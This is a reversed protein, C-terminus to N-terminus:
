ALDDGLAHEILVALAPPYRGERFLRIETPSYPFTADVIFRDLGAPLQIEPLLLDAPPYLGRSPPDAPNHSSPVYASIISLSHDFQELFDHVRRFVLNTAKSRSRSNWWGEVVGKNDGFVKFHGSSGAIRPITRVLLEFGIAEAWGIDRGGGDLEKWGPILRWARWRNQITIAIGVGSSADSFANIPSLTRPAPIPRSLVSALKTSWWALDESIGKTPRFRRFPHPNCLKLMSELGTLYARGAPLVLCAHMLRGHLKQVHNLDHTSRLLWEDISIAYKKRKEPSLSVRLSNLDWLFGIYTTSSAFPLDKSREWPIGLADSFRDIDDFNYTYLLDEESRPSLSSFDRCPFSCDEVHEDLTGDEHVRGGFWLRGGERVQGREALENHRVQRQKNYSELFERRIRIFVHDDVWKALPGIGQHRFLDAGADAVGGYVGASPSFGFAAVSDVCFSDEDIRVVTGPWQSHHIPITRYAEAVDRTAIQSNPPLQQILLSIISFTGWTTPFDDSDLYSNISPNPQSPTTNYPFSYNQLLRFHGPKGPKEMISFPSSQFPGIISEILQRSFPGLYRQKQIELDVIKRFHTSYESIIDNNPPTQTCTINPMNILFGTRLGQPLLPYKSSLGSDLLLAEWAQPNYPTLAQSRRLELASRLETLLPPADRASTDTTMVLPPVAQLANGTRVCHGAM